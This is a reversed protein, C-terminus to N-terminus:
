THKNTPFEQNHFSLWVTIPCFLTLFSFERLWNQPVTTMVRSNECISVFLIECIFLIESVLLIFIVDWFSNQNFSPLFYFDVWRSIHDIACLALLQNSNAICWGPYEQILYLDQERLVRSTRKFHFPWSIRIKSSCSANSGCELFVTLLDVLGCFFYSSEQNEWNLIWDLFYLSVEWNFRFVGKGFVGRLSESCVMLLLSYIYLFAIYTFMAKFGQMMVKTATHGQDLWKLKRFTKIQFAHIM